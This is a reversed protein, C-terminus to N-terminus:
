LTKVVKVRFNVNVPVPVNTASDVLTGSFAGAIFEGPKTGFESMTATIEGSRIYTKDDKYIYVDRVRNTAGAYREGNMLFSIPAITTDRGKYAGILTSTSITIAVLSDTPYVVRHDIGNLRYDIFETLATGCALLKGLNLTNGTVTASGKSGTEKGALDTAQYSVTTTAGSCRTITTSFNGNTIPLNYYLGELEVMVFGNTVPSLNCTVAKGSITVQHQASQIVIDDLTVDGAFPGVVNESQLNRCKDFVKIQLKRNAPLNGKVEGMANTIGSGTTNSGGSSADATVVVEMGAMAQAQQDKVRVTFNVIPFPADCNWFSFHSVTGVYENGARTAAGEEKWLGSQEDFSWLPITAPAQSRLSEPIPFHITAKKGPALQLKEGGTGNLEVAMMGFSQLGTQENNATIGRLAGPMIDAFNTASPDIFFANVNVNGTYPKNGTPDVVSNGEFQITGGNDPVSINGGTTGSISGAVTKKILQITVVSSGGAETLLTKTGPFYGDKLVKVFAAHKDVYVNNLTFNGNGDTTVTASGTVVEANAVPQKNEDTVRGTVSAKVFEIPRGPGKGSSGSKTCAYLAALLILCLGALRLYPHKM